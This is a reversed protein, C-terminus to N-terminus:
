GKFGEQELPRLPNLKELNLNQNHRSQHLLNPPPPIYTQVPKYIVM